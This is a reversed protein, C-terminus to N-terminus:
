AAGTNAIRQLPPVPEVPKAIHFRLGALQESIPNRAGGAPDRIQKRVPRNQRDLMRIKKVLTYGDAPLGGYRKSSFASENKEVILLAELGVQETLVSAGHSKLVSEILGRSEPNEDVVLIVVGDLRSSNVM